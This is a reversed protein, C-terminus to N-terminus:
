SARLRFWLYRNEGRKLDRVPRLRIEGDEMRCEFLSGECIELQCVIEEPLTIQWEHSIRANM